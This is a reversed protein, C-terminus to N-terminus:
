VHARGIQYDLAQASTIAFLAGCVLALGARAMLGTLRQM